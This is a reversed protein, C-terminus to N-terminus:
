LKIDTINTDKSFIKEIILNLYVPSFCLIVGISVGLLSKEEEWVPLHKLFIISYLNSCLLFLVAIIMGIHSTTKASM